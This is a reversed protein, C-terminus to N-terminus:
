PESERARPLVQPTMELSIRTLTGDPGRQAALRPSAIAWGEPAHLSALLEAPDATTVISLGISEEGISIRQLETSEQHAGSWMSLVSALTRDAHPRAGRDRHARATARLTDLADRRDLPDAPLGAADLLAVRAADLERAADSWRDARQSLGVALMVACLVMFSAMAAHQVLRARQHARPELRGCLLELEHPDVEVGLCPPLAVPTLSRISPDLALLDEIPAACVVLPNGSGTGPAAARSTVGVAHLQEIPAPIDPAVRALLGPPLPGRRRWGPESVVVWYLREAPWRLSSTGDSPADPIASV